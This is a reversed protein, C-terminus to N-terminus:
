LKVTCRAPMGQQMRVVWSAWRSVEERACAVVAVHLYRGAVDEQVAAVEVAAALLAVRLLHLRFGVLCALVGTGDRTFQVARASGTDM